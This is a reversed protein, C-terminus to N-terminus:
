SRLDRARGIIAKISAKTFSFLSYLISRLLILHRVLSRTSVPRRDVLTVVGLLDKRHHKRDILPAGDGKTWVHRSTMWIVRHLTSLTPPDVRSTLFLAVDGRRLASHSLPSLTVRAGSAIHPRMSTGTMRLTVARGAKLEMILWADVLAYEQSRQPSSSDLSSHAHHDLPLPDSM